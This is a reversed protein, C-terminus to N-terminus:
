LGSKLSALIVCDYCSQWVTKEKGLKNPNRFVLAQEILRDVLENKHKNFFSRPSTKWECKDNDIEILSRFSALIPYIFSSPIAYETRANKFPLEVSDPRKKNVGELAGFKGAKNDDIFEFEGIYNEKQMTSLVRGILKSAPSITCHDNVQRENNRINTLADALPDMLTM